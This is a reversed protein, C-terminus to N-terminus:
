GGSVGQLGGGYVLQGVPEVADPLDQCGRSHAPTEFAVKWICSDGDPDEEIHMGSGKYNFRMGPETLVDIIRAILMNDGDNLVLFDLAGGSQTHSIGTTICIVHM